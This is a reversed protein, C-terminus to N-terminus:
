RCGRRKLLVEREQRQYEVPDVNKWIDKGLGRLRDTYRRRIVHMVIREGELNIEVLDGKRIGLKERVKQPIVVQYKHDVSMIEGM